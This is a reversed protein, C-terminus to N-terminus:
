HILGGGERLESWSHPVESEALKDDNWRKCEECEFGRYQGAEDRTLAIATRAICDPFLCRRDIEVLLVARPIIISQRDPM